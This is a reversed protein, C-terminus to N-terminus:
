FIVANATYYAKEIKRDLAHLQRETSSQKSLLTTIRQPKSATQLEAEIADLLKCLTIKENELRDLDNRAVLAEYEAKQQREWEKRLRATEAKTLPKPQYTVVAQTKRQRSPRRRPKKQVAKAIFYLLLLTIVISM